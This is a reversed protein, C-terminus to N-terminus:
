PLGPVGGGATGSGALRSRSPVPRAAVAALSRRLLAQFQSWPAADGGGSWGKKRVKQNRGETGLLLKGSVYNGAVANFYLM